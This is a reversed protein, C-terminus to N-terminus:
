PWKTLEADIRQIWLVSAMRWEHEREVIGIATPSDGNAAATSVM